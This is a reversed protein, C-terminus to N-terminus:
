REQGAGAHDFPRAYAASAHGAARQIGASQRRQPLEIAGYSMRSVAMSSSIGEDVFLFEGHYGQWAASFRGYGVLIPPIPGVSTAALVAVLSVAIVAVARRGRDVIPVLLVAASVAVLIILLQQSAQTGLWAILLLSAAAAGIIAGLTNTAYFWAM